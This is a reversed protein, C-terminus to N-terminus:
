SLMKEVNLMRVLEGGRAYTPWVNTTKLRLSITLMCEYSSAKPDILMSISQNEQTYALMAGVAHTGEVM